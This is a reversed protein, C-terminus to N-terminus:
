QIGEQTIYSNDPQQVSQSVQSDVNKDSVQETNQEPLNQDTNKAM